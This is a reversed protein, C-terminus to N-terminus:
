ADTTAGSLEPLLAALRRRTSVFRGLEDREQAPIPAAKMAECFEMLGFLRSQASSSLCVDAFGLLVKLDGRNWIRPGGNTEAM